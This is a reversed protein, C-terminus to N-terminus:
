DSDLVQITCDINGKIGYTWTNFEQEAAMFKLLKLGHQNNRGNFVLNLWTVINKVGKQVDAEVEAERKKLYFLALIQDHVAEHIVRQLAAQKFDMSQLISQFVAHVTNGLVLAYNFDTAMGKFQHSIFANRLCPFSKVIQTCSILIYPEVILM